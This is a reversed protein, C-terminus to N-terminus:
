CKTESTLSERILSDGVIHGIWFVYQSKLLPVTIIVGTSYMRSHKLSAQDVYPVVWDIYLFCRGGGGGREREGEGECNNQSGSTM